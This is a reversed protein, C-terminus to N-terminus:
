PPGFMELPPSGMEPPILGWQGLPTNTTDLGLLERARVWPVSKSGISKMLRQNLAAQDPAAPVLLFAHREELTAGPM